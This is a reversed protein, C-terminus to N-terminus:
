SRCDYQTLAKIRFKSKVYCTTRYDYEYQTTHSCKKTTSIPRHRKRKETQNKRISIKALAIRAILKTLNQRSISSENSIDIHTNNM